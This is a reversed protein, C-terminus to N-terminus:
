KPRQFSGSAESDKFIKLTSHSCQQKIGWNYNKKPFFILINNINLRSQQLINDQSSTGFREAQLDRMSEWIVEKELQLNESSQQMVLLDWINGTKRQASGLFGLPDFLTVESALIYCEELM